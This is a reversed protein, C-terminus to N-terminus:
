KHHRRGEEGKKRSQAGGFLGCFYDDGVDLSTSKRVLKGISEKSATASALRSDV